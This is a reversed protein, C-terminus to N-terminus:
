IADKLDGIFPCNQQIRELAKHYLAIVRHPSPGGMFESVEQFTRPRGDSLGFYLDLIKQERERLNSNQIMQKIKSKLMEKHAQEEVSKPDPLQLIDKQYLQLTDMKVLKEREARKWSKTFYRLWEPFLYEVQKNLIQSLKEKVEQGPYIWCTEIRSIVTGKKGILQGLGEQSLGKEHRARVLRENQVHLRFRLQAVDKEEVEDLTLYKVEEVNGDLEQRLEEENPERDLVRTLYERTTKYKKVKDYM